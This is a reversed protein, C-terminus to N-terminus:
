KLNLEYKYLVEAMQKPTHNEKAFALWTRHINILQKTREDIMKAKDYKTGILKKALCERIEKEIEEM